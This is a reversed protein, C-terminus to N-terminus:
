HDTHGYLPRTLIHDLTGEDTVARQFHFGLRRALALSARNRADIQVSLTQVDGRTQLHGILCDMAESAYGQGWHAPALVYALEAHQQPLNLTAQVYGIPMSSGGVYLIFNLWVQSPDPCGASLRQYRARLGHQDPFRTDPMYTYLRDDQLIVQMTDAHAECLPELRLRPTHLTHM